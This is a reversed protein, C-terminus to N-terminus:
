SSKKAFTLSMTFDIDTEKLLNALPFQVIGYTGNEDITKKLALLDSRTLAVGSIIASKGDMDVTFSIIKIEDPILNILNRIAEFTEPRQGQIRSLREVDKRFLQLEQQFQNSQRAESRELIVEIRNTVKKSEADAFWVELLLLASAAMLIIFTLEGAFLIQRGLAEYQREKKVAPPLLNIM